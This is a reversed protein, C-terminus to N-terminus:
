FRISRRLHSEGVVPAADLKKQKIRTDKKATNRLTWAPSKL